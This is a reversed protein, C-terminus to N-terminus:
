LIRFLKTVDPYKIDMNELSYSNGGTNSSDMFLREIQKKLKIANKKKIVIQLTENNNIELMFKREGNFVAKLM